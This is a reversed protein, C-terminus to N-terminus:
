LSPMNATYSDNSMRRAKRRERWVLFGYLSAAAAGVVTVAMCISYGTHYLPADKKQFTFTALVGGTNGFGIIWASGISRQVHGRLNMLYWCIM